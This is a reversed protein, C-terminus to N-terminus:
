NCKGNLHGPRPSIKELLCGALQHGVDENGFCRSIQMARLALVDWTCLAHLAFGIGVFEELLQRICEELFLRYERVFDRNIFALVHILVMTVLFSKPPFVCFLKM